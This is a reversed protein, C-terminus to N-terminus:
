LIWKEGDVAGGLILKHAIALFFRSSLKKILVACLIRSFDFMYTDFKYQM